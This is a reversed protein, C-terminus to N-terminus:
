IALIKNFLMNVDSDFEAVNNTANKKRKRLEKAISDAGRKVENKALFRNHIKDVVVEVAKNGIKEAAIMTGKEVAKPLVKKGTDFITKTVIDFIGSGNQTEVFGERSLNIQRPM